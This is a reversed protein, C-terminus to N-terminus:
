AMAVLDSCCLSKTPYRGVRVCLSRQVIDERGADVTTTQVTRFAADLMRTPWVLLVSAGDTWRM